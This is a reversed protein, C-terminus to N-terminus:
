MGAKEKDAKKNKSFFGKKDTTGAKADAEANGATQETDGSDSNGCDEAQIEEEAKQDEVPIQATDKMEEQGTDPNKYEEAM